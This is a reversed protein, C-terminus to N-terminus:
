PRQESIRVANFNTLNREAPLQTNGNEVETKPLATTNAPEEAVTPDSKRQFQQYKNSYMM